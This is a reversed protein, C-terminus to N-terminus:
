VGYLSTVLSNVFNIARKIDLQLLSVIGKSKRLKIEAKVITEIALDTSRNRKNGMQEDPLLHKTEAAETIRQAFATKLIKNISILLLIPKWARLLSKQATTKNFKLLMM